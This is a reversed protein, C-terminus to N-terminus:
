VAELEDARERRAAGDKATTPVGPGPARPMPTKPAYSDVKTWDQRPRAIPRPEPLAARSGQPEEAERAEPMGAPVRGSIRTPFMRTKAAAKEKVEKREKAKERDEMRTGIIVLAVGLTLAPLANVIPVLELVTGTMIGLVKLGAKKGTFYNVGDCFIFLWLSAIFIGIFTVGLNIVQGLVPILNILFQVGDLFLEVTLLSIASATGVRYTVKDM